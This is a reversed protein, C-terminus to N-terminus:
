GCYSRDAIRRVFEDLTGIIEEGTNSYVENLGDIFIVKWMLLCSDLEM